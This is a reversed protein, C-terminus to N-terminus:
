ARRFTRRVFESPKAGALERKVKRLTSSLAKVDAKKGEERAKRHREKIMDELGKKRATLLVSNSVSPSTKAVSPKKIM